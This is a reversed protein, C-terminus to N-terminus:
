INQLLEAGDNGGNIGKDATYVGEFPCLRLSSLHPGPLKKFQLSELQVTFVGISSWLLVVNNEEAFGVIYLEENESNISLLKDLAITRGLMWSAVGDCDTKWEWLQASFGSLFLSGLGGGEAPLVWFNHYRVGHTDKPPMPILALSRRDLDFELIGVFSGDGLWYLSDGVMVAPMDFYVRETILGSSDDDSPLQTSILDGWAGTESSYVTAVLQTHQQRECQGVLVVQFHHVDGAARLVTGSILYQLFGLPSDLRHQDSTVPDWVLLQNCSAHSILVLGHRCGLIVVGSYIFCENTPVPFTFRGEPVRNPAELAHVFYNESNTAVFCGILPLNRRHHARFQRCFRPDSALSRWCRSIASARPLSSPLPPLRLLIEALLDDDELPGATSSTPRRRLTAM